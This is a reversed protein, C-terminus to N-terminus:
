KSTTTDTTTTKTDTTTTKKHKKTHKKAPTTAAAKKTDKKSPTSAMKKAAPAPTAEKPTMIASGNNNKVDAPTQAFAPAALALSAVLVLTSIKNMTFTGKWPNTFQYLSIANLGCYRSVM